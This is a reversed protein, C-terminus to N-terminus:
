AQGKAEAKLEDARKVSERTSKEGFLLVIPSAVFISSYTGIIIGILLMLSFDNIVVGGFFYLALVALLTTVSTLLTRSLTANISINIIDGLSKAAKQRIGERIRDFVVITDNISYGAVTLIAGVTILTFQHGALVYVGLVIIVDHTLAVIAGIAFSLEFRWFVYLFIAILGFILATLAKEKFEGGITPSVRDLGKQKFDAGPFQQQLQALTTEAQNEPARLVLLENEGSGDSQYQTVVGSSKVAEKLVDDPVKNEDSFSLTMLDGGVFDVGLADNGKTGVMSISGIILISSASLALTRM